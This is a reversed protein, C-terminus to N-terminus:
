KELCAGPRRETIRRLGSCVWDFGLAAQVAQVPLTAALLRSGGEEAIIPGSLVEGLSLLGILLHPPNRWNVITSAGGAMWLLRFPLRYEVTSSIFDFQRPWYANLNSAVARIFLQPHAFINQIALRFIEYTLFPHPDGTRTFLEPHDVVMRGWGGGGVSLGYLIYSFSGYLHMFNGNNAWLVLPQLLLVAGLVLIPPCLSSLLPRQRRWAVIAVWLLVMPLAYLAGPRAQLAFALLGLGGLAALASHRAAEQLLLVVALTGCALGLAETTLMPLAHERAFLLLVAAAVLAGGLGALRGVERVLLGLAFGIVVAQFMLAAPLARDALALLTALFGSYFFPRDQCWISLDLRADKLSTVDVELPMVTGFLFRAGRDLLLNSCTVYGFADSVPYLGAVSLSASAGTLWNWAVFFCTAAISGVIALATM